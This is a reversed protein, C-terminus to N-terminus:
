LDRDLDNASYTPIVILLVGEEQWTASTRVLNADDDLWIKREFHSVRTHCIIENQSASTGVDIPHRTDYKPEDFRPSRSESAIHCGEHRKEASSWDWVPDFRASAKPTVDHCTSGRRFFQKFPNSTERARPTM